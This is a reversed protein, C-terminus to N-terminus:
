RIMEGSTRLMRLLPTGHEARSADPATAIIQGDFPATVPLLLPGRQLFGVIDDTRRLVRAGVDSGSRFIGPGDAVITSLVSVGDVEVDLGFGDTEAVDGLEITIRDFLLDQSM